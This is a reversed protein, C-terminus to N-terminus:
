CHFGKIMITKVHWMCHLSAVINDVITSYLGNGTPIRGPMGLHKKAENGFEM